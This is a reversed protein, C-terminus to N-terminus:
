RSRLGRCICVGDMPVGPAESCLAHHHDVCHAAFSQACWLHHSQLHPRRLHPGCLRCLQSRGAPHTPALHSCAAVRPVALAQDASSVAGEGAGWSDGGAVWLAYESPWEEAPCCSRSVRVPEPSRVPIFHCTEGSGLAASWLPRTDARTSRRRVPAIEYLISPCASSAQAVATAFAAGAIGKNMLCVLLVDGGLNIIGALAAALLPTMPDMAALFFAQTVFILLAAPLGLCRCLMFPNFM